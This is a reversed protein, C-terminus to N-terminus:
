FILFLNHESAFALGLAAGVSGFAVGWSPCPDDGFLRESLVRIPSELTHGVEEFSMSM